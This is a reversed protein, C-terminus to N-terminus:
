NRWKNCLYEQQCEIGSLCKNLIRVMKIFGIYFRQGGGYMSGIASVRNTLDDINYLNQTSSGDEVGDIINKVTASTEKDWTVIICHYNNDDYDSSSMSSPLTSSGDIDARLIGSATLSFIWAGEIDIIKASASVTSFKCLVLVSGGNVFDSKALFNQALGIYDDGGFYLSNRKWTPAANGAGFTGNNGSGSLDRVTTGAGEHFDLILRDGIYRPFSDAGKGESLPAGKGFVSGIHRM